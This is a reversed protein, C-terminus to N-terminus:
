ILIPFFKFRNQCINSAMPSIKLTPYPWSSILNYSWRTVSITSTTTTTTTADFLKFTHIRKEVSSVREKSFNENEKLLNKKFQVGVNSPQVTLVPWFAPFPHFHFLPPCYNFPVTKNVPAESGGPRPIGVDKWNPGWKSRNLIRFTTIELSRQVM